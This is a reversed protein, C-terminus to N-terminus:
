KWVLAITVLFRSFTIGFGIVYSKKLAQLQQKWVIIEYISVM